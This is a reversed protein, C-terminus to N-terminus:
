YVNRFNGARMLVWNQGLDESRFLGKNTAIYIYQKIVGNKYIDQKAAISYVSTNPELGNNSPVFEGGALRYIGISDLGALLVQDHPSATMFIKHNNPLGPYQSWNKGADTSYYVGNAGNLDAAVLGDNFHGIQYVGGAPLPNVAFIETWGNVKDPKEFLRLTNYDLGYLKGNKTQTFSQISFGSASGFTADTQWTLGNDESFEVSKGKTSAVYLLGFSPVDLIQNQWTIAPLLTDNTRNFNVGNNSSLFLTSGQPNIISSYKIWMLNKGSTAVARAPVGDSPFIIKYAKGDNTNYLAGLRDVFYVGYPTLIVNNNVIGNEKKCGTGFFGSVAVSLLMIHLIYGKGSRM